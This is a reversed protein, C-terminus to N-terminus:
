RKKLMKIFIFDKFLVSLYILRDKFSATGLYDMFTMQKRGCPFSCRKKEKRVIYDWQADFRWDIGKQFNQTQYADLTRRIGEELPIRQRFEPVLAKIKSNDIIADAARGAIEGKREPCYEMLKEAPVDLQKVEKGLIRGLVNLVYSWSVPEDGCINFAQGYAVPNGILGVVGIAFDEVRMMNWRATGGDWTIVAKGNLIREVLTWHYGYPPMIGYPIRTDDYTICPRVITYHINQETAKATLYQECAWKDTSYSWDKFGKPADEDKKGPISTDYVCASSIFIYQIANDKFLDLSNAIQEQNYCIFDIVADFHRGSLAQKLFETNRIDARILEAGKPILHKRNGRNIMSVSIGKNLAERVVATSLVGTGGVILLNM